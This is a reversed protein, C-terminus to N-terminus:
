STSYFKLNQFIVVNITYIFKIDRYDQIKGNQLVDEWEDCNQKVNLLEPPRM